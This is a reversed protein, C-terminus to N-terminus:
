PRDSRRGSSLHLSQAGRTKPPWYDQMVMFIHATSIGSLLMSDTAELAGIM